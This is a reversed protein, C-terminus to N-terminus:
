QRGMKQEGAAPALPRPLPIAAGIAAAAIMIVIGRLPFCMLLLLAAMVPQRMVAGMCGATCAAVCSVPDAGTLLSFGYGISVGAFILPFFHGGRWGMHICFPTLAAKVFGTAILVGAPITFYSEMLMHSQEEGAFMAYPLAMGCVALVLGALVAKVVPREGLRTSLKETLATSAHFVWGCACGALALPIALALELGGVEMDSFRPLGMGGGFIDGLVIFAGLAGVVACLYVFTKQARPLRIEIGGDEDAADAGVKAAVAGEGAVAGKDVAGARGALPAVFGYFPATFVATLAAQTGLMTLKRFEGGFRRMRDGVWTCLGAIVGTLGAEPGISGGFLLPLLAAVSLKGMKDYPYRGEEKVRGMVVSLEEPRVGTRADFAGILLGGVLCLALPYPLFGFPGTALAPAWGSVAEGLAAPLKAWLFDIGFGMLFFFLWVFAGALAGTVVVCVVFLVRNFPKTFNPVTPKGGERERFGGAGRLTTPPM